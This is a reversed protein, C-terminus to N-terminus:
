PIKNFPMNFKKEFSKQMHEKVNNIPIDESLIESISTQPYDKLGCAIINEFYSLDISVNLSLGHMTIWKRVKLGISAIKQGGTFVGRHKNVREGSIGYYRLTEIIVEELNYVFLNLDKKFYKLDFVPYCILQGPGHLTIDGGRNSQVIAIGRESLAREGALLNKTSRNSGITIVPPHELLLLIGATSSKTILEFLQLQLQFSEDYPILGLDFVSIGEAFHDEALRVVESANFTDKKIKGTKNLM